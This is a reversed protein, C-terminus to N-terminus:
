PSHRRRQGHRQALLRHSGARGPRRRRRRLRKGMALFQRPADRPGPNQRAAETAEAKMSAVAAHRGRIVPRMTQASDDTQALALAGLFLFVTLTKVALSSRKSMPKQRRKANFETSDWRECLARFTPCGCNRPILLLTLVQASLLTRGVRTQGM